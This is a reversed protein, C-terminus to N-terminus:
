ARSIRMATTLGFDDFYALLRMVMCSPFLSQECSIFRGICSAYCGCQMSLAVTSIYYACCSITYVQRHHRLDDEHMYLYEWVYEPWSM